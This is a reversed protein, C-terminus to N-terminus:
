KLTQNIEHSATILNFGIWIIALCAPIIFLVTVIVNWVIFRTFKSNLQRIEDFKEEEHDM